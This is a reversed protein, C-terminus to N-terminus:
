QVEYNQVQLEMLCQTDLVLVSISLDLSYFTLELFLQL